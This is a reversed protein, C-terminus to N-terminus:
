HTRLRRLTFAITLTALLVFVVGFVIEAVALLSALSPPPVGVVLGVEEEERPQVPEHYSAVVTPEATPPETTPEATLTPQVSPLVMVPVPTPTPEVRGTAQVIAEAEPAPPPEAAARDSMGEKELTVEVEAEEAPAEVATAGLAGTELAETALAKQAEGETVLDSALPVELLSPTEDVVAREALLTPEPPPLVEAEPLAEAAEDAAPARQLVVDGRPLYPTSAPLVQRLMLDGAVSFVFLLAVV